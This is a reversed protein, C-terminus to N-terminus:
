KSKPKKPLNKGNNRLAEKHAKHQIDWKTIMDDYHKWVDVNSDSKFEIMARKRRYYASQIAVITGHRRAEGLLCEELSEGRLLSRIVLLQMKMMPKHCEYYIELPLRLSDDIKM